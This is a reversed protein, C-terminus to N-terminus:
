TGRRPWGKPAAGWSDAPPNPGFELAADAAVQVIVQRLEVGAQWAGPLGAAGYRAGLLNGCVSGTSDSDGSHNVALLLARRVIGAPNADAPNPGALGDTGSGGTGAEDVDPRHAALAACVAIALAEEGTWGGGLTELSEPTVNGSAALAVAADLAASTEQHGPHNELEARAADLADTLDDGRLLGWVTAALVGASLHGSPHGHTLAASAAGLEFARRRLAPVAAPRRPSFGFGAPAARMVGGCGKSDNIPREVTGLPIGPRRRAAVEHLASLCTKGPGRREHMERQAFLWSGGDLGQEPVDEGQTRLWRLYAMQLLGGAAGGIGKSRERASAQILAEATFLTMQTDDTIAGARVRADSYETLGAAGYRDRIEAIPRGEIPAGLADGIAGALLCGLIRDPHPYTVLYAVQCTQGAVAQRRRADESSQQGHMASIVVRHARPPSGEDAPQPAPELEQREVAPHQQEAADDDDRHQDDASHERETGTATGVPRGGVRHGGM